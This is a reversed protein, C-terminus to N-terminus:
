KVYITGKISPNTLSHYQIIGKEDFSITHTESPKINFTWEQGVKVSTYINDRITHQIKDNNVWQIYDGVKINVTRPSLCYPYQKCDSTSAGDLIQVTRTTPSQVTPNPSILPNTQQVNSQGTQVTSQVNPRPIISQTNVQGNSQINTEGQHIDGSLVPPDNMVDIYRSKTDEKIEQIIKDDWDTVFAISIPIISVIFLTVLIPKIWRNNNYWGGYVRKMNKARIEASSLNEDEKARPALPSGIPANIVLEQKPEDGSMIPMSEQPEIAKPKVFQTYKFNSLNSFVRLNPHIDKITGAFKVFDSDNSYLVVHHQETLNICKGLIQRDNTGNSTSNDYLTYDDVNMKLQKQQIHKNYITSDYAKINDCIDDIKKSTEEDYKVNITIKDIDAMITDKFNTKLEQVLELHKQDVLQEFKEKNKRTKLNPKTETKLKDYVNRYLIANFENYVESTIKVKNLKHLENIVCIFDGSLQKNTIEKYKEQLYGGCFSILVNTDLVLIYDNWISDELLVKALNNRIKKM